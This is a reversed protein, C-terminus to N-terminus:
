LAQINAHLSAQRCPLLAAPESTAPQSYCGLSVLAWSTLAGTNHSAACTSAASSHRGVEREPQSREGHLMVARLGEASVTQHLFRVTKVRNAFILVRPFNRLGVSRDQLDRRRELCDRPRLLRTWALLAVM